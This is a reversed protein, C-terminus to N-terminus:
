RIQITPLRLITIGIMVRMKEKAPNPKAKAQAILMKLTLYISSKTSNVQPTLAHTVIEKTEREGGDRTERRARDREDGQLERATTIASERINRNGLQSAIAQTESAKIV